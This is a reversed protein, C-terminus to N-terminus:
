PTVTLGLTECKERAKTGKDYAAFLSARVNKLRTETSVTRGTQYDDHASIAEVEDLCADLLEQVAENLKLLASVQARLQASEAEAGARGDRKGSLYLKTLLGDIYANPNITDEAGQLDSKAHSIAWEAREEPTLMTTTDSMKNDGKAADDPGSRWRSSM